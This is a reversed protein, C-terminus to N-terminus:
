AQRNLLTLRSFSLDSYWRPPRIVIKRTSQNTRKNSPPLAENPQFRACCQQFRSFCALSNRVCLRRCLIGYMLQLASVGSFLDAPLTSLENDSVNSRM